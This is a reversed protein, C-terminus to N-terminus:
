NPTKNEEMLCRIDRADLAADFIYIEDVGGRFFRGRTYGVMGKTYTVDRGLWVGHQARAVETRVERLARRSVHELKGDVYLLVHTGVDPQSGGYLVAAIHHWRGDRLDASGVIQGRHLGVRLRGVPGDNPNPNVSIQWVEGPRKPNFRGWSIIAYGQTPSYDEPVKVWLCVTRPKGGGIGRFGSEAYAGKGDFQLGAGFVGPIWAPVRGGATAHFMLAPNVGSVDSLDEARARALLGSGENLAWHIFGAAGSREPPMRTYFKGGDAAIRESGGPGFRLADERHLTVPVAGDPVAEVEGEFVHTEVEGDQSVSVGFETGLDIVEGRPTEITFGHGAPTARMVLRGRRLVARGAEPFELTAPGEVVMRGRGALEFEVLGAQFDIRKGAVLQAGEALPTRSGWELNEGRAFTAMVADPKSPARTGFRWVGFVSLAVLAAAAMARVAWRRTELRRRVRTVFADSEADRVVAMMQRVRRERAVEDEMAVGLHGHLAALGAAESRLTEDERLMGVLRRVEEAEAEGELVRALLEMAKENM